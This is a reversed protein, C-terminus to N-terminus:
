GEFDERVRRDGPWEERIETIQTAFIFRTSHIQQM